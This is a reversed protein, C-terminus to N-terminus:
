RRAADVGSWSTPAPAPSSAQLLRKRTMGNGTRKAVVHPNNCMSQKRSSGQRQCDFTLVTHLAEKLPLPWCRTHIPCFAGICDAGPQMYQFFHQNAHNFIDTWPDLNHAAQPSLVMAVDDGEDLLPLTKLYFSPQAM